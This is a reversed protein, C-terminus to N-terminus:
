TATQHHANLMLSDFLPLLLNGVDGDSNDKVTHRIDYLRLIFHTSHTTIFLVFYKRGKRRINFFHVKKSLFLRYSYPSIASVDHSM